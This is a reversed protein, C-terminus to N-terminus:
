WVQSSPSKEKINSTSAISRVRADDVVIDKGEDTFGFEVRHQRLFAKAFNWDERGNVDSPKLIMLGASTGLHRMNLYLEHKINKKQFGQDELTKESNAALTNLISKFSPLSKASFLDSTPQSSENVVDALSMGYASLTSSYKHIIVRRIGLVNAVDCAHQGGAGGFCALHHVSTDYGRAETLARIPRAM